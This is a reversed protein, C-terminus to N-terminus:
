GRTQRLDKSEAVHIKMDDRLIELDLLWPLVFHGQPRGKGSIAGM